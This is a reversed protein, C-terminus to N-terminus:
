VETEGYEAPKEESPVEQNLNYVTVNPKQVAELSVRSGRKSKKSEREQSKRVQPELWSEKDEAAQQPIGGQNGVQQGSFGGILPIQSGTDTQPPGQHRGTGFSSPDERVIKVVVRPMNPLTRVPAQLQVGLDSKMSDVLDSQVEVEGNPCFIPDCRFSENLDIQAPVEEDQAGVM